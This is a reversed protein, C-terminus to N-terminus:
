VSKIIIDLNFLNVSPLTTYRTKKKCYTPNTDTAFRAPHIIYDCVFSLVTALNETEDIEAFSAINLRRTTARARRGQVKLRADEVLAGTVVEEGGAGASSVGGDPM